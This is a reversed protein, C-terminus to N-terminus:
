TKWCHGRADPLSRRGTLTRGRTCTLGHGVFNRSGSTPVPSRKLRGRSLWALQTQRACMSLLARKVHTRVSAALSFLGNPGLSGATACRGYTLDCRRSISPLRHATVVDVCIRHWWSRPGTGTTTSVAPPSEGWRRYRMRGPMSALSRALGSTAGDTRAFIWVRSSTRPGPWM